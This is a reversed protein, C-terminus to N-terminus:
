SGAQRLGTRGPGLARVTVEVDMGLSDEPAGTYSGALPIAQSPDRTVGVRILNRPHAVHPEGLSTSVYLIQIPSEVVVGKPIEIYAGDEALATNLAVFAHQKFDAYRGLHEELPAAGKTLAEALSTVKAKAPLAQLSSLEPSFFGNVFVLRSCGEFLPSRALKKALESDAERRAPQFATGAIPAVNTYKWDELRTTPFGLDAFASMADTRLAKLWALEAGPLVTAAAIQALYPAERDTVKTVSM